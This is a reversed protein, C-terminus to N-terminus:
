GEGLGAQLVQVHFILILGLFNTTFLVISRIKRSRSRFVINRIRRTWSRDIQGM